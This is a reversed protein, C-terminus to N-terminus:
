QKGGYLKEHIVQQLLAYDKDPPILVFRGAYDRAEPVEFFGPDFKEQSLELKPDRISARRVLAFAQANPIDRKISIHLEHALKQLTAFDHNKVIVTVQHIIAQIVAQQRHSRAFDSGQDSTAHRSRVYKLAVPGNMKINGTPFSVTQYRCGYDPDFPTCDKNESGSIPFQDDVFGTENSVTIGGLIDVITSFAAFDVVAVYDLDIGTLTHFKKKIYPYPNGEDSQLAYTYTANIKDRTEDSWVDRPLGLTRLSGDELDYRVLLITDTLTPGEHDGGGIGLILFNLSGDASKSTDLSAILDTPHMDVSSLLGSVTRVVVIGLIVLIIVLYGSLMLFKNRRM